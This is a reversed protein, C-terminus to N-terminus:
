STVSIMQQFYHLKGKTNWKTEKKQDHRVFFLFIWLSFQIWLTQIENPHLLFLFMFGFQVWHYEETANVSAKTYVQGFCFYIQRSWFISQLFYALRKIDSCVDWRWFRLFINKFKRNWWLIAWFHLPCPREPDWAILPSNRRLRIWAIFDDRNSTWGRRTSAASWGISIRPLKVMFPIICATNEISAWSYDPWPAGHKSCSLSSVAIKRNNQVKTQWHLIAPLKAHCSLCRMIMTRLM